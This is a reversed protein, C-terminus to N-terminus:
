TPVLCIMEKIMTAASYTLSLIYMTSVNDVYAPLSMRDRENLIHSITFAQHNATFSYTSVWVQFTYTKGEMDTIFHSIQADEPNVGEGILLHGAEYARM